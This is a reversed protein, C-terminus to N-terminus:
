LLFNKYFYRLYEVLKSRQCLHVFAILDSYGSFNQYMPIIGNIESNYLPIVDTIERDFYYPIIANRTNVIYSYTSRFSGIFENCFQLM